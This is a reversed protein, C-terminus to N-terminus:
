VESASWFIDANGGEYKQVLKRFEDPVPTSKNTKPNTWVLTAINKAIPINKQAHIMYGECVFSSNRISLLRTYIKLQDDFTASNIYDVENRVLVIKVSGTITREDIQLGLQKFYKVRAIEFYLLYNGNHVIGQWDIEYNRVSLTHSHKFKSTDMFDRIM